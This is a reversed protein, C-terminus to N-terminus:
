AVVVIRDYAAQAARAMAADWVGAEQAEAVLRRGDAVTDVGAFRAAWVEYASAPAAARLWGRPKSESKAAARDRVIELAQRATKWGAVIDVEWVEAIPEEGDDRRPVWLAMAIDQNVPPMGVWCGAKEDWMADGHAYCAFQAAIELFTWFKRQTKLDGIYLGGTLVDELINDLTGVVELSEVLVRREQMGPLARLHNRVLAAAYLSLARRTGSSFHGYPLGAHLVEVSGHMATGHKSGRNGGSAEKAHEIFREVWAKREVRDMDPLCAALVTAYLAPDMAVGQLVEGIEWLRLAFQDSYASVLNSVRMFGRSKHTGDKWPLMYRGHRLISERDTVRSAAPLAFPDELTM